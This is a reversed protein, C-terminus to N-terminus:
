GDVYESRTLRVASGPDWDSFGSSWDAPDSDVEYDIGRVTFSDHPDVPHGPPLYLTLSVTNTDSGVTATEGGLAASGGPAVFVGEITLDSTVFTPKQYRDPPGPTRTHQTVTEGSM